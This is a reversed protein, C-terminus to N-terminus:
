QNTCRKREPFFDTMAIHGRRLRHAFGEDLRRGANNLEPTGFHGMEPHPNHFRQLSRAHGVGVGDRCGLGTGGAWLRM